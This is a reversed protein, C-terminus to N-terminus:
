RTNEELFNYIAEQGKRHLGIYHNGGRVTWLAVPRKCGPFLEMQTEAEPIGEELDLSGTAVPKTAKCGNRLAWGAVTELASPHRPLSTRKLPHGGQYLIVEDEDGHVQLVAVSGRPVCTEDPMPGAGALSAIGAIGEVECALRHAMFGGNSFGVVFLQRPDVQPHAAAQALLERLVKVHDVGSKELDCCSGWANWFRRKRSDQSGDPAAYVFRKEEALTVVGFSNVLLKGSGGLGHLYLVFPRREGPQISSPVTIGVGGLM